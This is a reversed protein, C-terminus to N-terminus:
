NSYTNGGKTIAAIQCIEADKGLSTTETDFVVLQYKAVNNFCVRPQVPRKQFPPVMREYELFKPKPLSLTSQLLKIISDNATIDLNIGVSTQYTTCERAESRSNASLKDRHLQSRRKKFLTSSKGIKDKLYKQIIQLKTILSATIM